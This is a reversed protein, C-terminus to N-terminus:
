SPQSRTRSQARRRAPSYRSPRSCRPHRPRPNPAASSQPNGRPRPASRATTRQGPRAYRGATPRPAPADCGYHHRSHQSKSEHGTYRPSPHDNTSPPQHTHRTLQLRTPRNRRRPPVLTRALLQVLRTRLRDTILLVPPNIRAACLINRRSPLRHRGRGSLHATVLNQMLHQPRQPPLQSLSGRLRNRRNSLLNPVREVGHAINRALANRPTTDIVDSSSPGLTRRTPACRGRTSDTGACSHDAASSAAASISSTPLGNSSQCRCTRSPAIPSRWSPRQVAKSTPSITGRWFPLFTMISARSNAPRNM